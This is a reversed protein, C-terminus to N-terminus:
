LEDRVTHGSSFHSLGKAQRGASTGSGHDSLEDGNPERDVLAAPARAVSRKMQSSGTAVHDDALEQEISKGIYVLLHIADGREAKGSLHAVDFHFFDDLPMHGCQEHLVLAIGGVFRRLVTASM